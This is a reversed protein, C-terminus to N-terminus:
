LGEVLRRFQDGRDFENIFIGFSACAPSLLVTDGKKAMARALVLAKAMTELNYFEPCSLGSKALSKKIKKSGDGKFLIVARCTKKIVKALEDFDRPPINKDSGGAILVVKARLTKLAAITAAPITSTTDNVYKIGDVQRILEIRGPLGIFRRLVDKIKEPSLQYIGAVALAALINSRSHEGALNVDALQALVQEKGKQRFIIKDNKIFCGNQEALYKKSFWFRQSIVQQGLKKVTKDDFNLVAYEAPTQNKFINTKADIYANLNSYRNLHDPYINTFVAVFPSFKHEGLVELQWSSLEVVVLDKARIQDLIASMPGGVDESVNPSRRAPKQPLGGLWIRAAVKKGGAKLLEFILASTTSKGRTGTVGIIPAPCLSLFISAENVIPIGEQRAIKLYKSEKAVGPNQVVLDCHAFDSERHQGLVFTIKNKEAATFRALSEVLEKKTKLDTVIVKSGHKVLWKTVAVGGGHLGLGMVVVKKNKFNYKM